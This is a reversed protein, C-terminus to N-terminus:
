RCGGISAAGVAASRYASPVSGTFKAFAGSFRSQTSFGVRAAIAAITEDSTRLLTGARKLRRRVIYRYPSVGYKAKFAHSFHTVSLGVLSALETLGIDRDLHEEVFDLVLKFRASGVNPTLPAPIPMTGNARFLEVVLMSALSEVYALPFDGPTLCISALREVLGLAIPNPGLHPRLELGGAVEGLVRAVAPHEVDCFLYQQSGQGKMKATYRHGRPLVFCDNPASVSRTGGRPPNVAEEIAIDPDRELGFVVVDRPLLLDAEATGRYSAMHVSCTLGAVAFTGETGRRASFYRGTDRGAAVDSHPARETPSDGLSPNRQSRQPPM